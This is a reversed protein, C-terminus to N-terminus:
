GATATNETSTFHARLTAYASGITKFREEARPDGKNADPHYRRALARYRSKVDDLTTPWGLDLLALPQRLPEPAHQRPPAEHSPHARRAKLIDLPDHLDDVTFSARGAGGMNGLKWSPRQWSTDARLHNEIQGPTMGRYYDWKANYERVHQLCFWYYSRLNDRGRPARYGAPLTCDPHDCCTEPADPDPDFARPRSMKRQM